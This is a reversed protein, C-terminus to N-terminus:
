DELGVRGEKQTGERVGEELALTLAAVSLVELSEGNQGEEDVIGWGNERLDRTETIKVAASYLSGELSTGVRIQGAQM